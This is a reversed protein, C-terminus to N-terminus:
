ALCLKVQIDDCSNDTDVLLRFEITIWVAALLNVLRVAMHILM